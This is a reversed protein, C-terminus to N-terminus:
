LTVPRRKVKAATVHRHGGNGCNGPSATHNANRQALVLQRHPRGCRPRRIVGVCGKCAALVVTRFGIDRSGFSVGALRVCRVNNPQVRRKGM